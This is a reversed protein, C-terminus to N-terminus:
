QVKRNTSSRIVQVRREAAQINQFRTKYLRSYHRVGLRSKTKYSTSGDHLEM